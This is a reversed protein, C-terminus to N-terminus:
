VQRKQLNLIAKNLEDRLETKSENLVIVVDLKKYPETVATIENQFFKKSLYAGVERETIIADVQKWILKAIGEIDNNVYVLEDTYRSVIEEVYSGKQIAVRKGKIYDVSNIEGTGSNKRHVFAVPEFVEYPETYILPKDKLYDNPWGVNIIAQIDGSLLKDLLVQFQQPKFTIEYPLDRTITTIFDVSIGASKGDEIYVWPPYAIDHGVVILSEAEDSGSFHSKKELFKAFEAGQGTLKEIVKDQYGINNTIHKSTSNLLTMSTSLSEVHSYIQDINKSQNTVTEGAADLDRNISLLSKKTDDLDDRTIEVRSNLSSRVQDYKGLSTNSSHISEELEDLLVSIDKTLGTSQEALKKVEAAVVKFGKGHEGARAAEIAANISLLNTLESIDEIAHVTKGIKVTSDQVKLFLDKFQEFHKGMEALGLIFENMVAITNEFSAFGKQLNEKAGHVTTVVNSSSSKIKELQDHIKSVDSDSEKASAVTEKVYSANLGAVTILDWINGTLDEQLRSFDDFMKLVEKEFNDNLEM